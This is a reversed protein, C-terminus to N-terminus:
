NELCRMGLMTDLEPVSIVGLGLMQDAHKANSLHCEYYVSCYVTHQQSPSGIGQATRVAQLEEIPVTTGVARQLGNGPTKRMKADLNVHRRQAAAERDHDIGGSEYIVEM